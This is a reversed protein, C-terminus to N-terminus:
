AYVLYGPMEKTDPPTIVPKKFFGSNAKATKETEEKIKEIEKVYYAHSLKSSTSDGHPQKNINSLFTALGEIINKNDIIPQGMSGSKTSKELVNGLSVQIREPLTKIVLHEQVTKVVNNFIGKSTEVTKSVVGIVVTENEPSLRKAAEKAYDPVFGDANFLIALKGSFAPKTAYNAHRNSNIQM